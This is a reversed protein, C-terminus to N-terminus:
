NITRIFSNSNWDRNDIYQFGNTNCLDGFCCYLREHSMWRSKDGMWCLYEDACGKRYGIYSGKYDVIYKFYTMCRKTGCEVEKTGDCGFESSECFKCKNSFASVVLVSMM